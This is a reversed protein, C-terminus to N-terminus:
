TFTYRWGRDRTAGQWENPIEHGGQLMWLICVIFMPRCCAPIYVLQPKVTAGGLPLKLTFECLDKHGGFGGIEIGILKSRM